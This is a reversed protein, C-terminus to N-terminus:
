ANFIKELLGVPVAIGSNQVPGCAAGTNRIDPQWLDQRMVIFRHRLRFPPGLPGEFPPLGRTEPPWAGPVLPMLASPDLGAGGPLGLTRPTIELVLSGNAAARAALGAFCAIGTLGQEACHDLFLQASGMPYANSVVLFAIGQRKARDCLATLSEEVAACAFGGEVDVDLAVDTSTTIRSVADISARGCRLHEVVHPVLGLGVRRMGSTEALRISRAVAAAPRASLGVRLFVDRVLAEIEGATLTECEGIDKM